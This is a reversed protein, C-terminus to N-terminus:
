SEDESIVGVAEVKVQPLIENISVVPVDPLFRELLRRFPLRIRPSTLVVPSIGKGRVKEVMNSLGEMLKQVRQPDMVPITGQSTNQLSSGISNELSPDLTIVKLDEGEGTYMRTIVRSLAERVGETLADSDRTSKGLDALTELITIMDHVPIGERLLNQLVKQIDGINLIDPVLEDVLAPQNEKVADVMEKVAQRSLLEYSYSNIIENLHTILVTPADVVTCGLSEAKERREPQIWLAPLNFTPDRAPIGKLEEPLEGEPNLALMYGTRLEGRAVESGKIKIQYQNAPLQLNDRIRIPQIIIGLENVAKRRAATIRELLNGGRETDTLPVLNYGVEIELMEVKLMSSFDEPESTSPKPEEKKKEAEAAEQEKQTEEKMLVFALVGCGAALVLFPPWPFNPLVALLFLLGSAIYLVKPYSLLQSSVEEGFSGEATSRTVLMGAATSILLAPIQAVLGDGVTLTTYTQIAEDFGMDLQIMGIALGGLINILVIIIGAIADGKVFKSAGDMSGYFDAEKQLEHRRNRAEEEDILGANFDADISMQKGPLADLSFRAAVEAVRGAGNTVVVFQVVTIIIFIIMGVIVQEQIVVDGFTDIVEGADAQSLILRTSSINLALRFLTAALLLSPFVNLNRTQRIFLTTLLVVLAFAINLTLLFDLMITHIPIIIIAVVLIFAVGALVDTNGWLLQWFNRQEVNFRSPNNM